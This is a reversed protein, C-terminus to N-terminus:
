TDLSLMVLTQFSRKTRQVWVPERVYAASSPSFVSILIEPPKARLLISDLEKYVVQNPLICIGSSALFLSTLLKLAMFHVVITLLFNHVPVRKQELMVPYAPYCLDAIKFHKVWSM